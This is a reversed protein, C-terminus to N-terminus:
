ILDMEWDTSSMEAGEPGVYVGWIIGGRADISFIVGKLSIFFISVRHKPNRDLGGATREYM